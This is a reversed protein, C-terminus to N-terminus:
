RTPAELRRRVLESRTVGEAAADADLRDLLAQPVRVQLLVTPSDPDLPQFQTAERSDALARRQRLRRLAALAAEFWDAFRGFLHSPADDGMWYDAPGSGDRAKLGALAVRCDRLSIECAEIADVLEADTLAALAAESPREADPQGTTLPYDALRKPKGGKIEAGQLRLLVNQQTRIIREWALTLDEAHQPEAGAAELRERMPAVYADHFARVDSFLDTLIVDLENRNM